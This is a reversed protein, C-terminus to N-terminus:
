AHANQKKKDECWEVKGDASIHIRRLNLRRAVETRLLVYLVSFLPVFILMGVVGLMSGGITIAALVWIAPLGVTNGVVKPYILNNELQQLILFVVVFWVAQIPSEMIILFAGVGCGIFAGCVPILATVGILVSIAMAYPFQFITMVIFFLLGLICAEVCQVTFFNSFTDSAMKMLGLFKEVKEKNGFAYLLKKAQVALIDKEVLIYIAFFMALVFDVIASFLSTAFDLSVTIVTEAGSYVFDSISKWISAWDISNIDLHPLIYKQVWPTENAWIVIKNWFEMFTAPIDSLTTGIQPIVICLVLTLVAVVSLLALVLAIGRKFRRLIGGVGKDKCRMLLREYARMPINLVFAICAGLIIPLFINVVSLFFEWVIGLKSMLLYFLIAFMMLGAIKIMNGKNLNM